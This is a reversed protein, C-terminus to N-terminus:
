AALRRQTTKARKKAAYTVLEAKRQEYSKGKVILSGNRLELVGMLALDAKNIQSRDLKTFQGTMAFGILNSENAYHHPRTEKGADDRSMKVMDCMHKYAIAAHHRQTALDDPAFTGKILADIQEDCWIAFRVDLWQAFRVALKPHLWTGGSNGRKAKVWIQNSVTNSNDLDSSNLPNSDALYGLNRTNSLKRENLAAIYNQTEKNALWHDVRKGFREAALTANIWGDATLPIATGEFDAKIIKSTM